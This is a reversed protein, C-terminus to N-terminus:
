DRTRNALDAFAERLTSLRPPKSLIIDVNPVQEGETILKQGWGTLLVVPTRPSVEKVSAAVRRGDVYPMGLDTIVADVSEGNRVLSRFSSIAAEGGSALMASHGLSTVARNLSELLPPDDDVLLLRLSRTPKAPVAPKAPDPAAAAKPFVLRFTTGRGAESDIEVEAGHRQAVGYVMALGLGTGREGKTTFFPELCRRRTEEDMGVGTDRVELYVNPRDAPSWTKLTLRGGEPMADVANFILNTLAERIEGEVGSTPPLAPELATDVEIVIGRQQPMEKWRARTMDVVQPVLANLQVPALPAKADRQRYFERMRGVTAEVDEIAHIITELNKRGGPSIGPENERLMDTYITIPSIANNIDHAIGSAMQGLARLREQQMVTAQSQRLDDYAKELASYLRSQHVALASHESLQRLFDLEASGFARAQLRGAILIGFVESEVILPSALLSLIGHAALAAHLPFDSASLDPEHVTQRRLCPELGNAAIDLATQAHGSIYAALGDIRTGLGSIRLQGAGADRMAVCAFDVPLEKELYQVMVQFISASDMRQGIARTLRDLLEMRSLQESIREMAKLSEAELRKRETIDVIASLVFRTDGTEVPNLGIEVPFERGDKRIGYLDRGAGMRRAEPRAFFGSRKGPHGARFREPVLIEMERGILEGQAYGFMRLAENNALAIIGQADVMVMATPASEVTARFLAESRKRESIDVIASLVFLGKETQIPNLGIEIPIEAGDKRLGYLDRGAGMRRAQPRDVFGHRRDPHGGQFRAPILVEVKRGLLEQRDYGFLREVERNVMTITGEADTMIIATPVSEVITTLLSAPNQIDIFQGLM